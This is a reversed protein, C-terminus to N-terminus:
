EGDDGGEIAYAGHRQEAERLYAGERLGGSLLVLDRLTMGERWPYRGSRRVSGGIAVYRDPRFETLSFVRIVEDEELALDQVAAGTTDRLTARLQM